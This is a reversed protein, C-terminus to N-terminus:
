EGVVEVLAELRCVRQPRFAIGSDVYARYFDEQLPTYFGESARSDRVPPFWRSVEVFRLAQVQRATAGRLDFHEVPPHGRARPPPRGGRRQGEPRPTVQARTRTSRRRPPTQVPQEETEEPAEAPPDVSMAEADETGETGETAEIGLRRGELHFRREGIHIGSSRGGREVQEVADAVAQAIEADTLTKKKKRAMIKIRKGRAVKSLHPPSEDGDSPAGGANKYRVM